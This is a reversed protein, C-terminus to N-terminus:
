PQAAAAAPECDGLRHGTQYEILTMNKAGLVMAIRGRFGEPSLAYAADARAADRGPCAIHYRLEGDTRVLREAKCGAFPNNPSLVPVPMGLDATGTQLCVHRTAQWSPGAVNPIQLAVEVAYAGPPLAETAEAASVVCLLLAAVLGITPM